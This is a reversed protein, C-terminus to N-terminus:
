KFRFSPRRPIKQEQRRDWTEKKMFDFATHTGKFHLFYIKDKPFNIRIVTDPILHYSNPKDPQQTMTGSVQYVLYNSARIELEFDNGQRATDIIGNETLIIKM